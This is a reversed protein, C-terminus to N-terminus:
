FNKGETQRTGAPREAIESFNGVASNQRIGAFLAQQSMYFIRNAARGEVFDLLVRIGHSIKNL